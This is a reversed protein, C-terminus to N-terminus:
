LIESFLESAKSKDENTLHSYTDLTESINSHGLQEQIIKFNVGKSVLYSAYSHRLGHFNLKPLNLEKVIKAWRDCISGPIYPYGKDSTFLFDLANKNNDVYPQWASGSKIKLKKQENVQSKIEKMLEENIHVVRSKKNKTPGLVLKSNGREKDYKFACDILITNNKFNIRDLQIAAIESERLGALAALKIMLRHKMNLNEITKMLHSLQQKDYFQLEKNKPEVYPVKVGQTPNEKIVDWEVAKGFLSKLLAYKNVLSRNGAKKEEAFYNVIHFKKIKSMKMDFFCEFNGSKLTNRYVSKTTPSLDVEVYTEMWRKAFQKFTFNDINNINEMNAVEIEFETIAKKIARDSLSNLTVTKFKRLRKGTSEDYGQEVTIKIRPKGNKNPTLEKYSAM